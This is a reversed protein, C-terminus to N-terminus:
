YPVEGRDVGITQGTINSSMASALFLYPGAVDAPSMLGELAQGDLIGDLMKQQSLGSRKAMEDLSRLSAETRVWGPAVANVTIGVPGLEKAWTKTLGIIAHKSAVYAGFLPEPVRGWASSTSIIRGGTKMHPLAERTALFTGVINVDIIRKFVQENDESLDTLPTLRELGANNILVDIEGFHDFLKRMARSDAVDAVYGVAGLGDAVTVVAPDNAVLHLSAGYEAFAEAIAQGIGRSSGTIVVTKNKFTIM